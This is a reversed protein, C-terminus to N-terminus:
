RIMAEGPYTSVELALLCPLMKSATRTSLKEPLRSLLKASLTPFTPLQRNTVGTFNVLV